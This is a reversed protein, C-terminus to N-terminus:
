QHRLFLLDTRAVYTCSSRLVSLNTRHSGLHDGTLIKICPYRVVLVKTIDSTPHKDEVYIKSLKYLVNMEPVLVWELQDFLFHWDNRVIILILVPSCTVKFM